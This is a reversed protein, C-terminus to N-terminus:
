GDGELASKKRNLAGIVDKRPDRDEEQALEIEANVWDTVRDVKRMGRIMAAITLENKTALYKKADSDFDRDSTGTQNTSPM